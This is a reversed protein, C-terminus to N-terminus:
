GVDHLLQRFIEASQEPQTASVAVSSMIHAYEEVDERRDLYQANAAHELYVVDPLEPEAFRLISFTGTMAAHAGVSLPLVQLRVRPLTTAQLLREIQGRLVKRGGVPRRLVAEDIVAWLWPGDDQALLQQRGLRLAVRRDIEDPRNDRLTAQILARMYAETQLLGPVLQDHYTRIQAAVAELDVYARFWQPLLDSYPSWWGPLNAERAMTIYTAIEVPDTVGYRAVLDTVDREKFGVQGNELRHVKWESARIAEGAEDRSVGADIRLRRLKAGLLMRRVTPGGRPQEETM